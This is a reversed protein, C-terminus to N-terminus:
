VGAERKWENLAAVAAPCTRKGKALQNVYSRSFGLESAARKQWTPKPGPPRRLNLFKKRLPHM